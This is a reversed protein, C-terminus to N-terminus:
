LLHNDGTRGSAPELTGLVEGGTLVVPSHGPNWVVMATERSKPVTLLAQDCGVTFDMKKSLFVGEGTCGEDVKVKMLRGHCALDAVLEVQELWEEFTEGTDARDEGSYEALPPLQQPLWPPPNMTESITSTRDSVPLDSSYRGETLPNTPGNASPHGEETLNLPQEHSEQERLRAQLSDSHRHAHELLDQWVRREEEM